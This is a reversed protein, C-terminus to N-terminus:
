TTVNQCQCLAKWKLDQRWNVGASSLFFTLRFHALHWLLQFDFSCFWQAIKAANYSELLLFPVPPDLAKTLKSWTQLQKIELSHLSNLSFHHICWWIQLCKCVESYSNSVVIINICSSSLFLQMPITPCPSHSVNRSVPLPTLPPYSGEKGSFRKKVHLWCGQKHIVRACVRSGTLPKGVEEWDGSHEGPGETRRM